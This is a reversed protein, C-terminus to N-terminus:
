NKNRFLRKNINVGSFKFGYPTAIRRQYNSVTPNGSLLTAIYMNRILKKLSNMARVRTKGTKFAAREKNAIRRMAISTMANRNVPTAVIRRPPM